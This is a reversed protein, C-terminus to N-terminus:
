FLIHTTKNLEITSRLSVPAIKKNNSTSDIVKANGTRIMIEAFCDDCIGDDLNGCPVERNCM